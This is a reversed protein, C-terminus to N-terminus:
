PHTKHPNACPVECPRDCCFIVCCDVWCVGCWKGKCKVMMEDVVVFRGVKVWWRCAKSLQELAVRVKHCKDDVGAGTGAGGTADSVDLEAKIAHWRDRSMVTGFNPVGFAAACVCADCPLWHVCLVTGFETTSWYHKTSPLRRIGMSFLLALWQFFEPKSLRAKKAELLRASTRALIAELVVGDFFALFADMENGVYLLEGNHNLSLAYRADNVRPVSRIPDYDAFPMDWAFPNLVPPAETDAPPEPEAALVPVGVDDDSADDESVLFDPLPAAPGSDEGSSSYSSDSSESTTGRDEPSFDSDDESSM